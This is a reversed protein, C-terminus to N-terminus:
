LSGKVSSAAVEVVLRKIVDGVHGSIKAIAKRLRGAAVEARPTDRAVEKINKEFEMREAEDAVEEAFREIAARIKRETWPFAAGCDHCYGPPGPYKYTVGNKAILSGQIPSYCTPCNTLTEESCKPCHKKFGEPTKRLHPSIVHGNPCIQAQDYYRV